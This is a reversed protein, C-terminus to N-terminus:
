AHKHYFRAQVGVSSSGMESWKRILFLARAYRLTWHHYMSVTSVAVHGCNELAQKVVHRTALWYILLIVCSKRCKLLTLRTSRCWYIARTKGQKQAKAICKLNHTKGFLNRGDYKWLYVLSDVLVSRLILGLSGYFTDIDLKLAEGDEISPAAKVLNSTMQSLAANGAGKKNDAISSMIFDKHAKIKRPYVRANKNKQSSL